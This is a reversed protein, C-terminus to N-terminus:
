TLSSVSRKMMSSTPLISSNLEANKGATILTISDLIGTNAVMGIGLFPRSMGPPVKNDEKAVKCLSSILITSTNYLIKCLNGNGQNGRVTMEDIYKLFSCEHVHKFSTLEALQAINHWYIIQYRMGFYQELNKKLNLQLDQNQGHNAGPTRM